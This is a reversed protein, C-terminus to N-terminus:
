STLLKKELLAQKRPSLYRVKGRKFMDDKNRFGHLSAHSNTMDDRYENCVLCICGSSMSFPIDTKYNIGKNFHLGAYSRARRQANSLHQM